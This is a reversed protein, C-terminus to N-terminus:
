NFLFDCMKEVGNTEEQSTRERGRPLRKRQTSNSIRTHSTGVTGSIPTLEKYM